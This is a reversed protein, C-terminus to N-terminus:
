DQIIDGLCKLFGIPVLLGGNKIIVWEGKATEKDAITVLRKVEETAIFDALKLEPIKIPEKEERLANLDETLKNALDTLEDKIEQSLESEKTTGVIQKRKQNFATIYKQQNREFRKKIRSAFDGLRGCRHAINPKLDSISELMDIGKCIELIVGVELNEDKMEQAM